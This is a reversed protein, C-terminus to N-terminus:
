RKSIALLSKTQRYVDSPALETPSNITQNFTFSSPESTTPASMSSQPLEVMSSQAASTSIDLPTELGKNLAENADKLADLDIVPRIVPQLNLDSDVLSGLNGLTDRMADVATNGVGKAAVNVGKTTGKLGIIMGDGLNEGLEKFVRSPSNIGLVNKVGNTIGGAWGKVTTGVSGAKSILGGSMGDALGVAIRRGSAMIDNMDRDIVAEIEDLFKKITSSASDAIDAAADGIGEIFDTILDTGATIIDTTKESVGDIFDVVADGGATVIETTKGAIGEILDIILDGGADIFKQASASLEDIIAVVLDAAAEIIDPIADTLGNIFEVILRGAETVLLGVNDAIGSILGTLIDMGAQVFQPVLEVIADLLLGILNVITDILKPAIENIADLLLNILMVVTEVLMPAVNQVATLLSMILTTIADVFAPGGKAIVEAFAIIGEGLKTMALPILGLLTTIAAGLAVAGGAGIAVLSTLGAAFWMVGLGALMAGAGLLAVAGALALLAPLVPTLALAAVGLVVFVAALIGLGTAAAGISMTSLLLLLPLFAALAFSIVLLAAAGPLAGTMLYMAGAVILLTAALGVMGRLLEEWSMTAFTSITKMMLNLAFAVVVLSAATVILNKPMLHAAGAIIGLAVAMAGLGTALAGLDMAGFAQISPLLMEFSKGLIGMSVAMALIQAPNGSLRSFVSVLALLTGIVAIGVQLEGSDIGAFKVIAGAFLQIASAMVLLGLAQGIVRADIKAAFLFAAFAAIAGGIALLGKGIEAVSLDKVKIMSNALISVASSLLILGVSAIILSTAERATFGQMAMTFLKLAGALAALLGAVAGLGAVTGQWDSEALKSVAYALILVVGSILVLVLSLQLLRGTSIDGEAIKTFVKLSTMMAGFLAIIAGMSVALDATDVFSMAILAGALAVISLAILFITSAKLTSQLRDFSGTIGDMIGSLPGPTEDKKGGGFLIGMVGGSLADSIKKKFAMISVLLGGFLGAGAVNFVDTTTMNRASELFGDVLGKIGGGIWKVAPKIFEWFSKFWGKVKDFAIGIADFIVGVPRVATKLNEFATVFGSTDLPIDKDFISIVLRAFARILDVPVKLVSALVEFFKIFKQSNKIKDNLKVLWDGIRALRELFGPGNSEETKFITRFVNVLQTLVSWGIQFVAFVGKFVRTVKAATEESIKLSRTFKGMQSLFITLSRLTPTPFMEHFAAKIPAILSSVAVKIDKISQLVPNVTHLLATYDIGELFAVFNDSAEMMNENIYDLFPKLADHVKDIVPTLANFTNRLAEFKVTQVTAGIRALAARMNSLSGTYTENAKTAHDGFADAMHMAFEEFSIKGKSVMERIEGETKGMAEGLTAAANIGRAGLRNLDEGMLRGQGAVKTFVNAMDSYSTGAMAAVGAIGRLAKKMDDGSQVGSAGFQSAAVAAEDLGFATGKVAYLADEMSQEVDMKLGKFQFKAQEINLARKAGGAVIPDVLASVMQNGFTIASNTARQLVSFAVAGMASFGNSVKQIGGQLGESNSITDTLKSMANITQNVGDLFTKNDFEMEVIRKDVSSM